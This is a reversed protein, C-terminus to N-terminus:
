NEEQIKETFCRPRNRSGTKNGAKVERSTEKNVYLREKRYKEAPRLILAPLQESL